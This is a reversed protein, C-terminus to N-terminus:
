TDRERVAVGGCRRGCKFNIDATIEFLLNCRKRQKTYSALVERNTRRHERTLDFETGLDVYRRTRAFEDLVADETDHAVPRAAITSIARRQFSKLATPVDDCGSENIGCQLKSLM